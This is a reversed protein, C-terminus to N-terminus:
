VDTNEQKDIHFNIYLIKDEVTKIENLTAISVNVLMSPFNEVLARLFSILLNNNISNLPIIYFRKDLKKLDSFKKIKPLDYMHALFPFESPTISNCVITLKDINMSNLYLVLSSARRLKKVKIGPTSKIWEEKKLSDDQFAKELARKLLLVQSREDSGLYKLEKGTFKILVKDEQIYLFLNNNKRIAYSKCFTERICSCTKYVNLPTNGIDIDKKTYNSVKEILILFNVM